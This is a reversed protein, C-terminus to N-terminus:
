FVGIEGSRNVAHNGAYKGEIVDSIRSLDRSLTSGIM